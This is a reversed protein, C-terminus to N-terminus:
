ALLVSSVERCSVEGRHRPLLLDMLGMPLGRLAGIAAKACVLSILKAALERPAPEGDIAAACVLSILQAALERRSIALERRGDM